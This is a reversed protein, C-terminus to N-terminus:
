IIGRDSYRQDDLANDSIFDHISTGSVPEEPFPHFLQRWYIKCNRIERPFDTDDPDSLASRPMAHTLVLVDVRAFRGFVRLSPKPKRARVEWVGDQCPDLCKLYGPVILGGEIFVSLKAELQIWRERERASGWPGFRMEQWLADRMLIVRRATAGPDRPLLVHLRGEAKGWQLAEDTLM